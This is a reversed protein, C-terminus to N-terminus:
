LENLQQDQTTVHFYFAWCRMLYPCCLLTQWLDARSFILTTTHTPNFYRFNVWNSMLIFYIGGIALHFFELPVKLLFFFFALFPFTHSTFRSYFFRHTYIHFSFKLDTDCFFLIFFHLSLFIFIISHTLTLIPLLPYYNIFRPQNYAFCSLYGISAHSWRSKSLMIAYPSLYLQHIAACMSVCFILTFPLPLSPQPHTQAVRPSPFKGLVIGCSIYCEISKNVLCKNM